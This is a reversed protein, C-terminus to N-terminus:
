ILDIKKEVKRQANIQDLIKWLNACREEHWVYEERNEKVLKQYDETLIINQLRGICEHIATCLDDASQDDLRITIISEM